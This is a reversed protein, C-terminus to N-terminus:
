PLVDLERRTIAFFLNQVEHVYRIVFYGNKYFCEALTGDDKKMWTLALLFDFTMPNEGIGWGRCVSSDSHAKFGMKLLWDETLRIPEVDNWGVVGVGFETTNLTPFEEGISDIEFIRGDYSVINGIRFNRAKM